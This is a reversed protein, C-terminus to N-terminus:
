RVEELEAWVDKVERQYLNVVIQGLTRKFAAKESPDIASRRVRQSLEGLLQLAKETRAPILEYDNDEQANVPRAAGEEPVRLVTKCESCRFCGASRVRLRHGCVPCGFIRPFSAPAQGPSAIFQVANPDFGYPLYDNLWSGWVYIETLRGPAECLFDDALIFPQTDNVDIGTGEGLDPMQIWKWEQGEILVVERHLSTPTVVVVADVNPDALAQRYDAYGTEVELETLDIKFGLRRSLVELLAQAAKPFPPRVEDLVRPQRPRPAVDLKGLGDGVQTSCLEELLVEGDHSLGPILDDATLTEAAAAKAWRTVRLGSPRASVTRMSLTTSADSIEVSVTVLDPAPFPVTVLSGAPILQPLVQPLTAYRFADIDGIRAM